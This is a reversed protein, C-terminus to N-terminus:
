KITIQDASILNIQGTLDGRMRLMFGKKLDDAVETLSSRLLENRRHHREPGISPDAMVYFGDRNMHPTYVETKESHEGISHHRYRELIM